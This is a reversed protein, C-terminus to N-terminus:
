TKPDLLGYHGLLTFLSIDSPMAHATRYANCAVQLWYLYDHDDRKEIECEWFNAEVYTGDREFLLDRALRDVAQYMENVKNVNVSVQDIVMRVLPVAIPQIFQRPAAEVIEEYAQKADNADLFVLLFPQGYSEIRLMSPVTSVRETCTIAVQQINARNTDSKVLQFQIHKPYEFKKM